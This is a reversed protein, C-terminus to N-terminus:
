NKGRRWRRYLWLAGATGGGAAAMAFGILLGKLYQQEWNSTKKVPESRQQAIQEALEYPIRTGRVLLRHTNVGFPVCTVLTCLDRGTEIQLLETEHPLVTRIQDVQYAHTERLVHLYFVDGPEIQPLDSFFKENAMGSHGTLVCHTSEGGIPLSSGLLHGIGTQLTLDGTGHYIPLNVCIQPVEVYGMIDDGAVNLQQPYGEAADKLADKSYADQAVARPRIAENYAQAAQRARRIGSDDAQRVKEQHEFQIVSRHKENYHTSILPYLTIGLAALFAAAALVATLIRKNKM